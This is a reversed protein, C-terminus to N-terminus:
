AVEEANRSVCDDAYRVLFSRGRVRPQVEKEFWVDLAEHLFINALLPSIVGGQPTGTETTRYQQEEMVGAKLWKGILRRIVGDRVKKDLIERLKAHDVTDFFKRIDAEVIWMAKCDMIQDRTAHLAQHASRKPRFGYSCNKFEQEYIPELLMVVARQAIKDEFTPIGIGRLSGDTKPIFVRKVPPAKYNGSKMRELLSRLNSVLDKEYDIATQGDIGAAGGKRTRDWAEKLWELDLYHNLTTLAM